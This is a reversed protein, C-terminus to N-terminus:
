PGEFDHGMAVMIEDVMKNYALLEKDKVCIHHYCLCSTDHKM